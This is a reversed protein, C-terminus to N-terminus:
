AVTGVFCATSPDAAMMEAFGGVATCVRAITTRAGGGGGWGVNAFRACAIRAFAPCGSDTFWTLCICTLSAGLVAGIRIAGAAVGIGDFARAALGASGAM